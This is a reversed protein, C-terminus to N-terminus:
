GLLPPYRSQKNAQASEDITFSQPSAYDAESPISPTELNFIHLTGKDSGVCIKSGAPNFQLSYIEAKDAGRRFECVIRGTKIEFVRVLTGKESATALLVGAPDIALAAIPSEHAPIISAGTSDLGLFTVCVHGTQLSPFALVDNGDPKLSMALLGLSQNAGWFDHFGNTNSHTEFSQLLQPTKDLSFVHLKRDLAVVM